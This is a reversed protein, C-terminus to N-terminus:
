HILSFKHLYDQSKCLASTSKKMPDHVQLKNDEMKPPAQELDEIQIKEEEKDSEEEYIMEAGCIDQFEEEAIRETVQHMQMKLTVVAAVANEEHSYKTM